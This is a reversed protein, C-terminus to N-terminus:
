AGKSVKIVAFDIVVLLVLLLLMINHSSFSDGVQSHIHIKQAVVFPVCNSCCM